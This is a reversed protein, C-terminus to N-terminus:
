LVTSAETRTLCCRVAVKKPRIATRPRRNAQDVSCHRARETLAQCASVFSERDATSLFNQFDLVTRCEKDADGADNRQKALNFLVWSQHAIARGYVQQAGPSGAGVKKFDQQYIAVSRVFNERALDSRKEEVFLNGLNAFSAALEPTDKDFARSERLALAKRLYQEAEDYKQQAMRLYGMTTMWQWREPIHHLDPGDPPVLDKAKNLQDETGAYDRKALAAQASEVARWFADQLLIETRDEATHNAPNGFTVMALTIVPAPKGDIEFPQYKWQNAAKIAAPVLMPHGSVLRHVSAAGTEDISIELIINGQIHAQEALPPYDPSVRKMLHKAADDPSVRTPTTQGVASAILALLVAISRM